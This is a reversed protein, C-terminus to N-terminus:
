KVHENVSAVCVQPDTPRTKAMVLWSSVLLDSSSRDNIRSCSPSVMESRASSGWAGGRKIVRSRKKTKKQCRKFGGPDDAFCHCKECGWGCRLTHGLPWQTKTKMM